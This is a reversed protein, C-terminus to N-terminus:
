ENTESENSEPEPNLMGFMGFVEDIQKDLENVAIAGATASVGWAGIEWAVTGATTTAEPRFNEVIARVVKSTFFGVPMGIAIKAITAPKVITSKNM